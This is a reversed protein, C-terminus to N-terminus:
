IKNSEDGQAGSDQRHAGANEGAADVNSKAAGSDANGADDSGSKANDEGGASEKSGSMAAADSGKESRGAVKGGPLRFLRRNKDLAVYLIYGGVGACVFEGIFVTLAFMPFAAFGAEPGTTIVLVFPVVLANAIVTPLPILWKYRCSRLLYAGIAGILTALSGLVVDILMSGTLANALICGIFLGPIAEPLFAPLVCLLESIRFQIDGSAMGFMFSVYTLCVYLAAILGGRALYLTPNRKM